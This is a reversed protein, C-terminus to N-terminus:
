GREPSAVNIALFALPWNITFSYLAGEEEDFVEFRIGAGSDFTALPSNELTVMAVSLYRQSGRRVVGDGAEEDVFAPAQVRPEARSPHALRLVDLAIAKEIAFSHLRRHNEDSVVFRLIPPSVAPSERSLDEEALAVETVEVWLKPGPRIVGERVLEGEIAVVGRQEQVLAQIDWIRETLTSDLFRGDEDLYGIGTETL